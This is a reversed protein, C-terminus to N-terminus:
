KNKNKNKNKEGITDAEITSDKSDVKDREKEISSENRTEDVGTTNETHGQIMDPETKNDKSEHSDDKEKLSPPSEDVTNTEDDVTKPTDKDINTAKPM